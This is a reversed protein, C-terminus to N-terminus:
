KDLSGLLTVPFHLFVAMKLCFVVLFPGFLDFFRLIRLFYFIPLADAGNGMEINIIRSIKGPIM